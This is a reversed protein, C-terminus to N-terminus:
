FIRLDLPVLRFHFLFGVRRTDAGTGHTPDLEFGQPAHLYVLQGAMSVNLCLRGGPLLIFVFTFVTIKGKRRWVPPIRMHKLSVVMVTTNTINTTFLESCFMLLSVHLGMFPLINGAIFTIFGEVCHELQITVLAVDVLRVRVFRIFTGLLVAGSGKVIRHTQLRVPVAVETNFRVATLNTTRFELIQGVFLSM